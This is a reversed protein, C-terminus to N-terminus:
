LERKALKNATVESFIMCVAFVVANVAVCLLIQGGISSPFQPLKFTPIIERESLMLFGFILLVVIGVTIIIIKMDNERGFLQGMMEMYSFVLCLFAFSGFIFLFLMATNEFSDNVFMMMESNQNPLLRNLGLSKSIFALVFELVETSFFLLFIYLFRARTISKRQVPLIGYLKKFDSKDAIGQLPIIMFMAGVAIYACINPSLFLSLVFCMVAIVIYIGLVQSSTTLFDFRMIKLIEKM